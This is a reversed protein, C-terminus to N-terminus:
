FRSSLLCILLARTRCFKTRSPENAARNDVYIHKLAGFKSCEDQVDEKIDLDFEPETPPISLGGGPLGALAPVCAQVLPSVLSPVAPAAGLIPATPLALGPSSVVPTGLSGAVSPATGSRDLKQMLIARSRANLAPEECLLWTKQLVM